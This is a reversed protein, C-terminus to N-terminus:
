ELRFTVNAQVTAPMAQGGQKAPVYLWHARMYEVAADDLRRFGSTREVAVGSVAGLETLSMKLRVTGQENLSRSILPYDLSQNERLNRPTPNPASGVNLRINAVHDHFSNSYAPTVLAASLLALLLTATKMSSLRKV